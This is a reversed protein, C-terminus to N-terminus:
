KATIYSKWDNRRRVHTKTENLELVTSPIIANQLTDRETHDGHAHHGHKSSVTMTATIIHRVRPLTRVFDLPVFGNGDMQQRLFVDTALNTPSFYFEVEALLQQAVAPSDSPMPIFPLPVPSMSPVHSMGPVSSPAPASNWMPVMVPVPSPLSHPYETVFYPVFVQPYPVPYQNPYSAPSPMRWADDSRVPSFSGDKPTLFPISSSFPSHEMYAPASGSCLAGPAPAVSKDRGYKRLHEGGNLMHIRALWADDPEAALQSTPIGESPAGESQPSPMRSQQKRRREEWVNGSKPAPAADSTRPQPAAPAAAATAATAAATAATAASPRPAEKPAKDPAPVSKESHEAASSGNGDQATASRLREAYSAQRRTGSSRWSSAM